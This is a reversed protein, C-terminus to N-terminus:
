RSLRVGIVPTTRKFISDAGLMLSFDPNVKFIAKADLQPHNPDFADIRFQTGDQPWTLGLGLKSAYIGYRLAGLGNVDTEFQANLKDREAFRVPGLNFANHDGIPVRLNVDSRFHPANTRALFDIAVEPRGIGFRPTGKGVPLTGVLTNIREILKQGQETTERLTAVSSKLDNASRIAPFITSTRQSRTSARSRRRPM